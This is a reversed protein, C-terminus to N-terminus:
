RSMLVYGPPERLISNTVGGLVVERLRAHGYAGMVLLDIRNGIMHDTLVDGEDDDKADLNVLTANIGHRALNHALAKASQALASAPAAGRGVTLLRVTKAGALLPLADAVARAAPGTNNWAIAVHDLRDPLDPSAAEPFLLLPRGAGFLLAEIVDRQGGSDTKVPIISLDNLHALEVTRAVIDAPVCQELLSEYGIAQRQATARFDAAVRRANDAGRQYEAAIIDGLSYIDAYIGAALRVDMEFAVATAHAGLLAALKVVRDIASGATAAPYTALPFLVNRFPTPPQTMPMERHRFIRVGAGATKVEIL